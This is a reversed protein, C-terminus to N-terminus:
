SVAGSRFKREPANNDKGGCAALTLVLALLLVISIVKKM